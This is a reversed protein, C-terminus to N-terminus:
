YAEVEVIRSWANLAGTVVIRIGTTTLAPFSIKQWVLRNGSINGNQVLQWNAGDWYQVQFDTIGYLTFTMASTPDSPSSYNDQLTFVDVESITKAGAFNVQLIDPSQSQTADNWGGTGNGWGVGKRDGNIAAGAPFASNYTSSASVTAGNAAAAVNVPSSPPSGVLAYAELETIRSYSGLANTVFVRIRQTNIAAFTIQRWVRNNGSIVGGPVAIWNAGDWYQV